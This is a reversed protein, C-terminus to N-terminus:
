DCFTEIIPYTLTIGSSPIFVSTCWTNIFGGKVQNMEDSSLNRLTEVRLSLKKGASPANRKM